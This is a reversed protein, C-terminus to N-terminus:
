RSASRRSAGSAHSVGAAVVADAPGVHRREDPGDEGAGPQGDGGRRRRELTPLVRRQQGVNLTADDLAPDCLPTLLRAVLPGAAVTTLLVMLVMATYLRGDILGADLGVALVVLAVLGRANMLAGLAVAERRPLGSALTAAVLKTAAVAVLVATLLLGGPGLGGLDVALGPLAFFVPLLVAEATRLAPTRLLAIGAARPGAPLATAFVVAGLVAHIGARDTAVAAAALGAIVVPGRAPLVRALVVIGVLAAVGTGAILLPARSGAGALALALALLPWILLEEVAAAALAIRGSPHADLGRERVIRALVPLATVALATGLFVAFAVAETGSPRVALSLAAGALWPVAFAVAAVRVVTGRERSLASRDLSGTVRFVYGVLAVQGLLALVDRAGATFLDDSVDGLVAAGLVIGAAVEGIVRPQRLRVLAGGLLRAVAAILAIDVLILLATPM